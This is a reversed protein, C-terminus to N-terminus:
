ASRAEKFSVLKRTGEDWLQLKICKFSDMFTLRKIGVLAPHDRLVETLRYFPIRSNLHHVHHIGINGTLWRLVPPLDYHSSGFLAAEERSWEEPKDWHTEEFQHQVYFMWVGIAAAMLSIPLYVLLFPILGLFYIILGAIVAIALNTGMASIWYKAGAKMFGIPLRYHFWFVFIPGVLFLVIPHRYLRYAFRAKDSSDNYERVTMTGIDGTGRKDLNGSGSHHINHARRWVDYPTMTFVGLFRGLWKNLTKSKFYAGHGCDHQIIFLRVLFMAALLSIPFTLFYSVSLMKYAAWCLLLFPVFTIFFEIWSRAQSSTRYPILTQMWQRATKTHTASQEAQTDQNM